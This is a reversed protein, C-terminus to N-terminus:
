GGLGKVIDLLKAATPEDGLSKADQITNTDKDVIAYAPLKTGAIADLWKKVYASPQGREDVTNQDFSEFTHGKASMYAGVPGNQMLVILRGMEPSPELSERIVVVHKRGVKVDPAPPVVPPVIPPVIPPVVVHPPPRPGTVTLITIQRYQIEQGPSPLGILMVTGDPVIAVNQLPVSEIRKGDAGIVFWLEPQTKPDVVPTPGTTSIAKSVDAIIQAATNLKEGPSSIADPAPAPAQAYLQTACLVFMTLMRALVNM